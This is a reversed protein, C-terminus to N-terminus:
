LLIVKAQENEIIVKRADAMEKQKKKIKNENEASIAVKLDEVIKVDRQKEKMM